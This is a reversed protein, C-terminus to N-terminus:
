FPHKYDGISSHGASFHDPGHSIDYIQVNKLGSISLSEFEM